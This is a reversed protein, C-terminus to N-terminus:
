FTVVQWRYYDQATSATSFDTSYGLPLGNSRVAPRSYEYVSSASTPDILSESQCIVFGIPAM